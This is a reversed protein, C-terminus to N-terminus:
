MSHRGLCSDLYIVPLATRATCPPQPGPPLALSIGHSRAYLLVHLYLLYFLSLKYDRCTGFVRNMLRLEERELVRQGEM